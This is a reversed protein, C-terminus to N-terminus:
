IRTACCGCIVSRICEANCKIANYFIRDRTRTIIFYQAIFNCIDYLAIVPIVEDIAVVAIVSEVTTLPIVGDLPTGAIVANESTQTLIDSRATSPNVRKVQCRDSCCHRQVHCGPAGVTKSGM